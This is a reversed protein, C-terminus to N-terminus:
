KSVDKQSDEKIVLTGSELANSIVWVATRWDEPQYVGNDNFGRNLFVKIAQELTM